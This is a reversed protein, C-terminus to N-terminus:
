AAIVKGDLVIMCGLQSTSPDSGKSTAVEITRRMWQEDGGACM